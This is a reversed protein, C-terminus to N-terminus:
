DHCNLDLYLGLAGSGWSKNQSSPFPLLLHQVSLLFSCEEGSGRFICPPGTQSEQGGVLPERLHGPYSGM